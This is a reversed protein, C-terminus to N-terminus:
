LDALQRLANRLSEAKRDPASVAYPAEAWPAPRDIERAQHSENLYEISLRKLMRAQWADLDIGTNSQWAQLEAHSLPAEGQAPGIEFLYDVLYFADCEPM